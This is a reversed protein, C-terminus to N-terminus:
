SATLPRTHPDQSLSGSPIATWTDHPSGWRFAQPSARSPGMGMAMAAPGNRALQAEGYSLAAPSDLPSLGLSFLFSAPM